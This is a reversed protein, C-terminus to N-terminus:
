VHAGLSGVDHGLLAWPICRKSGDFVWRLRWLMVGISIRPPPIDLFLTATRRM